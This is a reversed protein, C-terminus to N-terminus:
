LHNVFAVLAQFNVNAEDTGLNAAACLPPLVLGDRAMHAAPSALEATHMRRHLMCVDSRRRKGALMRGALSLLKDRVRIKSLCDQLRLRFTAVAM